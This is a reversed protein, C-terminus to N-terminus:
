EAKEFFPPLKFPSSGDVPFICHNAYVAIEDKNDNVMVYSPLGNGQGTNFALVTCNNKIWLPASVFMTINILAEHTNPDITESDSLFKSFDEKTLHLKGAYIWGNNEAFSIVQNLDYIDEWEAKFYISGESGLFLMPRRSQAEVINERNYNLWFYSKCVLRYKLLNIPYPVSGPPTVTLIWLLLTSFCIALGTCALKRHKKHRIGIACFVIAPVTFLGFWLFGALALICGVVASRSKGNQLITNQPQTKAKAGSM